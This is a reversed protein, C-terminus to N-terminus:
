FNVIGTIRAFHLFEEKNRINLKAKLNERHRDVTKPSISLTEAIENRSNGEAVLQIIERERPTLKEMARTAETTPGIRLLERVLVQSVSPSLYIDGRKVAHLALKLEEFASSKQVYGDADARLAQYVYIDEVYMSLMIVKIEPLSEKIQRTAELGNLGPMAIDMIIIDPLLKEALLIAERGDEAEGVVKATGDNEILSRLGQRVIAHDDALLIRM